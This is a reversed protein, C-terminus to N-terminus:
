RHRSPRGRALAPAALRRVLAPFDLGVCAASKPMLSTETLGPMTNIELFYFQDDPELFLDARAFDRCGCAEFLRTAAEGVAAALGPTVPAPFRYETAGPTYKTRYDYVGTSPIIEVLGMAQGDLLGISFERGSLRREAMWRGNAPLRALAAAVAGEGEAMFLGVSSGQDAPKIVVRDGLIAVLGAASPPADGNFAVEPVARIGAQRMVRKTAVKDMCLRAASSSCGAFAIGRAELEAQALGGEGWGGHLVPLVVHRAGDLWAPLADTPLEVLRAGPLVAAVAAGSRLSVAREASLGGCLIILEPPESM